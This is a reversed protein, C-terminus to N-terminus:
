SIKTLLSGKSGLDDPNERTPVCQWNIDDRELIKNVRKQIFQKCSGQGNLWCLVITSNAWGTVSKSKKFSIDSEM